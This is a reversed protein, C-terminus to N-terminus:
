GIIKVFKPTTITHTRFNYSIWSSTLSKHYELKDDSYGKYQKLFRNNVIMGKFTIYQSAENLIMKTNAGGCVIHSIIITSIEYKRGVEVIKGQFRTMIKKKAPPLMDVDDFVILSDLFMEKLMEREDKQDMEDSYIKIVDLGKVFDLEGWTRDDQIDTSCCYYVRNKPNLAKYQMSFEAAIISKGAGSPGTIYVLNRDGIYSIMPEFRTASSTTEVLKNPTNALNIYSIHDGTIVKAVSIVDRKFKNAIVLGEPINNLTELIEMSM